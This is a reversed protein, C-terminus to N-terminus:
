QPVAPFSGLAQTLLEKLRQPTPEQELEDLAVKLIARGNSVAVQAAGIESAPHDPLPCWSPLTVEPALMQEVLTCEYRGGSYYRRNPCGKCGQVIGIIKAM